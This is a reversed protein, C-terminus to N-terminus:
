RAVPKATGDPTALTPIAGGGRSISTTHTQAGACYHPNGGSAIKPKPTPNGCQFPASIGVPKRNKQPPERAARALAQAEEITAIRRWDDSAPADKTVRYTLAFKNPSRFDANGARGRETIRVFGLAELERIAPAIAHRDISYEVFNEFTVPLAGNDNGGHHAHEIEIRDLVRRASLSLVRYSPSELMEILRASFQGSIKNFRKYGAQGKKM